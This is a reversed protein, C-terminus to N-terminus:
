KPYYRIYFFFFAKDKQIWKIYVHSCPVFRPPSPNPWQGGQFRLIAGLTLPFKKFFECSGELYIKQNRRQACTTWVVLSAHTPGVHMGTM